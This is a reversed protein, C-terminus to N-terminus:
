GSEGSYVVDGLIAYFKAGWKKFFQPFFEKQYADTQTDRIWEEASTVEMIGIFQYPSPTDEPMVGNQGDGTKGGKMQLLTYSKASPLNLLLPGKFTEVWKIYDDPAVGDQLNYLIIQKPM